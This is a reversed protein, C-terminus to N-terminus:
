KSMGVLQKLGRPYNINTYGDLGMARVAAIVKDPDTDEIAATRTKKGAAVVDTLEAICGHIHYRTRTKTVNVICVPGAPRALKALLQDLTLRDAALARAELGLAARLQDTAAAGLPFPEKLAPRWHELGHPDVRELIKIDLLKDRIKANAESGTALLYVEDSNQVKEAALAAFRSEAEGFTQGFTRWEWRPVIHDM